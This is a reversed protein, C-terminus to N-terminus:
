EACVPSLSIALRSSLREALRVRMRLKWSRAESARWSDSLQDSCAASTRLSAWAMSRSRPWGKKAQSESRLPASPRAMPAAPAMRIAEGWVGSSASASRSCAAAKM